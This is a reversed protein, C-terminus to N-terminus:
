EPACQDGAEESLTTGQRVKWIGDSPDQVMEKTQRITGANNNVLTPSGDPAPAGYLVMTTYSCTTVLTFGEMPEISEIVRRGWDEPGVYFENSVMDAVTQELIEFAISGDLVVDAPDCDSPARLCAVYAEIYRDQGSRIQEDLTLTTTTPETTTSTTSATTPATTTSTAPAATSTTAATSDDGGGCGSGLLAVALLLASSRNRM